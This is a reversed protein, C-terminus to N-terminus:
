VTHVRPYYVLSMRNISHRYLKGRLIKGIVTQATNFINAIESQSCNKNNYLDFIQEIQNDSFKHPREFKTHYDKMNDQRTGLFLHYPNVCRKTDCKHLVCFGNPIDSIFLQYSIRHSNVWQGDIWFNGYGNRSVAGNWLWCADLSLSTRNIKDVFRDFVSKNLRSM